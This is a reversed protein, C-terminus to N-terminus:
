IINRQVAPNRDCIGNAYLNFPFIGGVLLYLSVLLVKFKPFRSTKSINNKM